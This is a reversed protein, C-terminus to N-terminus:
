NLTCASEVTDKQLIAHLNPVVYNTVVSDWSMKQALAYGSQIMKELDATLLHNSIKEALHENVNKEIQAIVNEDINAYNKADEIYDAIIVNNVPQQGTIRRIFGACGCISSIVCLGGFTLPEIHSIGFPEYTSLGLEVDTGRRLDVLRIDEPMNEGCSKRDFGFQNILLAKAHRSRTNFRQVLSYFEAEGGSLDPWGERHAVPWAYASEMFRISEPDRKSTETSIVFLVANQGTKQLQKEINELIGIDRWLGKSKVLRTVHTIVFDPKYGLLNSCYQQIKAKSALKEKLTTKYAGIGNYVVDILANKFGPGLFRLESATYDGVALVRHCHRSAEILPHKFYDSQDSYVDNLYKGQPQALQLNRYFGIDRFPQEEVIRRITAVEHAYFVTKFNTYNDCLGALVTPMGMWEHGVIVTSGDAADIAKLISIVVPALRVYQEYEWIHEYRDSQIGFRQYLYKKLEDVPEDYMRTVDVLIVEQSSEIGAQEDKFTKTGYVIGANYIREIEQFAPAYRTNAIGDWFSYLVHGGEGLRKSVSCHKDFLPGVIISRKTFGLYASSTFFGKLVAGIGGIKQTTEHTVHVITPAGNM